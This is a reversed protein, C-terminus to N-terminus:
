EVTPSKAAIHLPAHTTELVRCFVYKDSAASEPILRFRQVWSRIVISRSPLHYQVSQWIQCFVTHPSEEFNREPRNEMTFAYEILDNIITIVLTSQVFIARYGASFDEEMRYLLGDKTWRPKACNALLFVHM